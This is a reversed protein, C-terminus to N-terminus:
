RRNHRTLQEQEEPVDTSPTSPSTENTISTGWHGGAFVCKKLKSDWYYKIPCDFAKDKDKDKETLGDDVPITATEDAPEPEPEDVPEENM